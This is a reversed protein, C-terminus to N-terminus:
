QLCFGVYCHVQHMPVLMCPFDCGPNGDVGSWTAPVLDIRRVM